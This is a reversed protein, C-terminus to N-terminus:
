DAPAEPARDLGEDGGLAERVRYPRTAQRFIANRVARGLYGRFRGREPSYEFTKLASALSVLVEQRVDEADALQLGRRLCYRVILEGYRADFEAWSRRDSPDRLRLLLSPRTTHWIM